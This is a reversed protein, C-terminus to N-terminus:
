DDDDIEIHVEAHNMTSIQSSIPYGRKTKWSKPKKNDKMFKLVNQFTCFWCSLIFELYCGLDFMFCAAVKKTKGLCCRGCGRGRGGDEDDDDLEIHARAFAQQPKVGAVRKIKKDKKRPNTNKKQREKNKTKNTELKKKTKM